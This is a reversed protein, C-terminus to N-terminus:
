CYLLMSSLNAAPGVRVLKIYFGHELEIPM